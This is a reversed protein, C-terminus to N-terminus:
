RRSERSQLAHEYNPDIQLALDIQMKAASKNNQKEYVMGLHYHYAANRPSKQLAERLLDGAFGYLGKHYYVWALTDAASASDPM